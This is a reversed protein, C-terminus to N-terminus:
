VYSHVLTFCLLTLLLVEEFDIEGDGGSDEQM